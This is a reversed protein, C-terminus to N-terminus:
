RVTERCDTQWARIGGNLNVVTYGMEALVMAAAKSRRGRLCYIAITKEKGIALKEFDTRFTADTWVVNTAGAIHGESYERKSRIDVLVTDNRKITDAFESTTAPKSKIPRHQSHCLNTLCLKLFGCCPKVTM